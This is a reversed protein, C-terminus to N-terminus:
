GGRGWKARLAALVPRDAAPMPYDELREPAVWRLAQGLRGWPEGRWRSVRWVALDIVRDPYAHRVRILPRATVLEIGLEEDLERALAQSESEGAEIKGGPFEWLGGQHADAARRALLVKGRRNLLAGAAVRLTASV